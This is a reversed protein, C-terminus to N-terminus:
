GKIRDMRVYKEMGNLWRTGPRGRRRNIFTIKRINFLTGPV